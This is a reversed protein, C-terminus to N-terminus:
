FPARGLPPRRWSPRASATATPRQRSSHPLIVHSFGSSGVVLGMRGPGVDFGAPPDADVQGPAVRPFRVAIDGLQVIAKRGQGFHAANEPRGVLDGAEGIRELELLTYRS